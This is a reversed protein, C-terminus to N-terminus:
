REDGDDRESPMSFGLLRNYIVRRRAGGMGIWGKHIEGARRMPVPVVRAGLGADEAFRAFRLAWRDWNTAEGSALLGRIDGRAPISLTQDALEGALRWADAAAGDLSWFPSDAPADISRAGEGDWWFPLLTASVGDRTFAQVANEDDALTASGDADAGHPETCCQRAKVRKATLEDARKREEAVLAPGGIALEAERTAPHYSREVLPRIDDPLRLISRESLARHALWLTGVDYVFRAPGFRLRGIDDLTPAHVMLRPEDFGEPRLRDHRHLRGARQFVLDIPALDTHLEDFDLDLSQEVVQTAILIRGGKPAGKGFRDLVVREIARRDCGRFRAHFLVCEVDARRKVLRRFARQALRVTSRIWAVRAGARAAEVLRDIVRDLDADDAAENAVEVSFVRTPAIAHPVAPMSHAQTDGSRKTVSVLPYPKSSATQFDELQRADGSTEQWAKALAERRESPLTASLLVVPVRLAGLWGLLHELLVETYADYAHVEDIVVVDRALGFLRVFHHRVVIAAQLAQDITGVGVQALLVRKRNLLWRACMVSAEPADTDAARLSRRTLRSFRPERSAKSHALALQVDGGVFLREAVAEVREFMANSTAMTPLAVMVGDALGRELFRASLSLAAETKGKGMAAEVIVLAPEDVDLAETIIQVDRPACGPFLEGFSLGRVNARFLGAADCARAARELARPWYDSTALTGSAYPFFDVDSGIWDAVSCLGAVLLAVANDVTGRCPLRARSSRFHECVIRVFAARAAADERRLPGPVAARSATEDATPLSGHHGCVARLLLLASDGLAEDLAACVEEDLEDRQEVIRFGEVGHDYTTAGLRASQPRLISAIASAKVQFRTDVKGLDHLACVAALTPAISVEDAIDMLRGLRSKLVPHREVLVFACAAVDMSHALVTHHGGRAPDAKGWYRSILIHDAEIM